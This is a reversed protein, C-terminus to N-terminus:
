DATYIHYRYVTTGCYSVDALCFFGNYGGRRNYSVFMAHGQEGSVESFDSQKSFAASRGDNRETFGTEFAGSEGAWKSPILLLRKDSYDSHM